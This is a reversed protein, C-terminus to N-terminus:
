ACTCRVCSFCKFAQGIPLGGEGFGRAADASCAGGPAVQRVVSKDFFDPAQAEDLGRFGRARQAGPAGGVQLAEEAAQEFGQLGGGAVRAEDQALECAARTAPPPSWPKSCAAREGNFVRYGATLVACFAAVSILKETRKVTGADIELILLKDNSGFFNNTFLNRADVDGQKSTALHGNGLAFMGIRSSTLSTRMIGLFRALQRKAWLATRRDWSMNDARSATM